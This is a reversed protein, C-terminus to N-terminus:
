TSAPPPPLQMRQSATGIGQRDPTMAQELETADAFHAAVATDLLRLQTELAPRREPPMISLLDLLGARIRRAVPIIKAGFQRVETFALLVYDDWGPTTYWLRATGESDARWSQALDRLGIAGVVRVIRDLTQVATYPDNVAASLARASVDVLLRLAFLPDQEITRSKGFRVGALLTPHHISSSGFVQFVPTGPQVFDGVAPVLVITASHIRAIPVLWPGYFGLLVGSARDTARVVADPEGTPAAGIAARGRTALTALHLGEVERIADRAVSEVVGSIRYTRMMDVTVAIFALVSAALLAVSVLVPLIGVDHRDSLALAVAAGSTCMLVAGFLGNSLVVAPRYLFRAALRPSYVGNAFAIQAVIRTMSTALLFLAVAGITGLSALVEERDRTDPWTTRTSLLGLALGIVVVAFTRM